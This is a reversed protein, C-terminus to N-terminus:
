KTNCMRYQKPTMKSIKHFITTFYNQNKFGVSIAIDLITYDTTILLHQSEKIRVQNLYNAFSINLEQKFLSSFYNTSLNVHNSVDELKVIESFHNEMYKTANKIINKHSINSSDLVSNTSNIIFSQIIAILKDTSTTEEIENLCNNALLLAQEPDIYGTITSRSILTVLEIAHNKNTRLYSIHKNKFYCPHIYREYLSMVKKINGKSINELFQTEFTYNNNFLKIHNHFKVDLNSDNIIFENQSLEKNVLLSIVLQYIHYRRNSDLIPLTNYFNKLKNKYSIPISNSHIIQNLTHESMESDLYPGLLLSGYYNNDVNFLITIYFFDYIAPYIYFDDKHNTIIDKMFSSFNIIYDPLYTNIYEATHKLSIPTHNSDLIISNLGTGYYITDSISEIQLLDLKNNKILHSFQLM